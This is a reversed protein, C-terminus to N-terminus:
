SKWMLALGIGIACLGATKQLSLSEHFIVSSVLALLIVSGAMFMPYAVNLAYGELSKIYCLTNALGIALGLGLLGAKNVTWEPLGSSQKFLANAVVNFVVALALYLASMDVGKEIEHGHHQESQVM